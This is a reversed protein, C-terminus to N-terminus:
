ADEYYYWCDRCSLRKGAKLMMPEIQHHRDETESESCMVVLVSCLNQTQHIIEMVM